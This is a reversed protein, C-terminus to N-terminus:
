VYAAIFEEVSERKQFDLKNETLAEFVTQYRIRLEEILEKPIPPLAEDHYPDCHAKIWLRFFEKDFNEPELGQSFRDEYTTARWYRSSDPTHIEDILLISRDSFFGFEYKTDALILGRQRAILSGYNFLEFAKTTIYQWQNDSLIGQSIIDESDLPRDHEASKTTPTIIPQILQQNKKMGEPLDIGAIARLGKQYQMWLSTDTTGTIYGRVVVEIPIPYCKKAVTINPHPVAIVHNPIIHKTKEFWWASLLNLFVGKSPIECVNRDFASLRDTTVFVLEDGHEYIDRVKGQKKNKANM